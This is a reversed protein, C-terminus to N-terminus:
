SRTLERYRPDKTLRAMEPSVELPLSTAGRKFWPALVAIAHERDDLLELARAKYLQTEIDSSPLSDGKSLCVKSETDHGVKAEYLGLRIWGPGDTADTQLQERQLEAAKHYATRAEDRQGRIMFNCDGLELWIAGDGSDLDLAQRAFTLAEAFKRQCRLATSMCALADSSPKILLSERLKSIAEPIRGMQLHVAALNTLALAFRPNALNTTRFETIAHAYKGQDYLAVGYENHALWYNPRQQLVRQFAEEAQKWRNLRTHLQAQWVLTVTNSPDLALARRMELNAGDVDGSQRLALARASHAAVLSSDLSLAADANARALATAAPDHKIEALRGYAMALRAMALAYRGDLDIAQKYKAIAPELGTDNNEKLLAEASGFAAYAEPNTTGPAIRKESPQFHHIDLLEAAARVVKQPLTLEQEATLHIQRTRLPRSSAGGPLVALSVKLHKASRVGSAALVLNAGLSERVEDLQAPTSVDAPSPPIVFLDHDYAEARALESSVADILNTLLPKIKADVAPPWGLLAVFRKAPLPQLYASIEDRKWYVGSAAACCALGSATLMQRRTWARPLHEHAAGLKASELSTSFRDFARCRVVPQASLFDRVTQVYVAPLPVTDLAPAAIMELGSMSETPREGTLVQHLVVGLAFIDSARSPQQGRILEPALYGPTGAVGGTQSLTADSEYIRALGFDMLSVSLRLGSRDLMVNSPKIDRHVVGADHIAAAAAILQRFVELAEDRPLLVHKRLSSELTEGALLKMTLFLFPPPVEECRFIEYIPCLNPHNVKRALLVEQEFRHSSEEDAAIEPLIIKLAVRNGHLLRDEVEYVEGMGGRAIFRVVLFRRAIIDGVSFRSQTIEGPDTSKAHLDSDVLAIQQKSRVLPLRLFSGACEDERLLEEVLRRLAPNGRCAHDLFAPRQGPEIGLADAFLEEASQRPQGM